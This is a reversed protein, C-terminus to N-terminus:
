AVRRSRTEDRLFAVFRGVAADEMDARSILVVNIQANTEAIPKFVVGPVKVQAQSATALTVGFGAAVLAFLSQKSAPHAHFRASHGLLSACLERTAQSEDWEQILIDEGRLDAWEITDRKALSHGDPLVTTLREPYLAISAMGDYPTFSSILGVDMRRESIARVIAPTTMEMVTIQVDPSRKRWGALLSTLPEGVPPLRVGLRITGIHGTGTQRAARLVADFEALAREASPLMARGGATLHVGATSREFLALGLEDEMATIRRSVTSTQICLMKAARGFNGTNAVTVLYRLDLIEM